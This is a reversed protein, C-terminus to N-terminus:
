YPAKNLLLWYLGLYTVSKLFKDFDVPKAIYSNVGPKYSEVMDQEEQPSTMVVVPIMKTREGAKVQRLVEYINWSEDQEFGIEIKGTERTNSFKVANSILNVLIQLILNRDGQAASLKKISFVLGRGTSSQEIERFISTALAAMNITMTKMERRSLRSLSIIDDILNGMRGVESHITNLCRQGESDFQETYDELLINSFGQIARLPARLDHSVSYSFAQLEKNAAELQESYLKIKNETNKFETIDKVFLILSTIEGNENRCQVKDTQVWLMKGSATRLKEIIGMKPRGSKIVELDDQYYHEAEEPFLDYASKGEIDEIKVGVTEAAAKNVRLFRNNLDKFWIQAPLSDFIIQLEKLEEAAQKRRTEHLELGSLKKNLNNLEEFLEKKPKQINKM